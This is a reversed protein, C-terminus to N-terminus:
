KKKRRRPKPPFARNMRALYEPTMSKYGPDNSRELQRKAREIEKETLLSSKKIPKRYVRLSPDITSDCM